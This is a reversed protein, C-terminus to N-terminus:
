VPGVYREGIFEGLYQGIMLKLEEVDPHRNLFYSYLSSQLYSKFEFGLKHLAKTRVEDFGTVMQPQEPM